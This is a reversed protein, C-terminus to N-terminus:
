RLVKRRWAETGNLGHVYCGDDPEVGEVCSCPLGPPRWHAVPRLGTYTTGASDPGPEKDLNTTALYGALVRAHVRVEAPVLTLGECGCADTRKMVHKGADTDYFEAHLRPHEDSWKELAM